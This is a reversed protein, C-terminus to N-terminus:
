FQTNFHYITFQSIKIRHAITLPYTLRGVQDSAYTLSYIALTRLQLIQSHSWSKQDGLLSNRSERVFNHM